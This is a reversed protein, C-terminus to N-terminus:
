VGLYRIRFYIRVSLQDVNEDADYGIVSYGPNIHFSTVQSRWDILQISNVGNIRVTRKETDIELVDGPQLTYLIRIFSDGYTLKPNTVPANGTVTFVARVWTPANGRNNVTVNREFNYVGFVMGLGQTSVFPWGLRPTISNLDVGDMGGEGDLYGSPCLFTAKIEIASYLNGTPIQIARLECDRAVRVTEGYAIEVDYTFSPDFFATAKARIVANQRTGRAKTTITIDRSSVRKGTIVDGDGNANKETFVEVRPADAGSLELLGMPQDDVDFTQGDSRRIVVNARPKM